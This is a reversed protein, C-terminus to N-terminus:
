HPMSAAGNPLASISSLAGSREAPQRGALLQEVDTRALWYDRRQEVHAVATRIQERKALLLQFLGVLMANYELQTHDVIQQKTPLLTREYYDNAERMALLRAAADRARARLEVALGAHLSRQKRMESEAAGIAGQGQYFLPLQLEIAPGIGWEESREASVGAAVEPVIGQLRALNSREAAATFRHKAIALDINSTLTMNEFGILSHEQEPVQPLRPVAKWLTDKGWLGMLVNLRERASTAQAEAAHLELRAEDFAVRHSALDLETINGAEHLRLALDLAVGYSQLQSKRLELLEATAQYSLFARRTDYSLDLMRAIATLKAVDVEARAAGARSALLLLDTLDLMAGVEMDPRAESGFRLGAELTPNPLRKAETLHGETVGVQEVVAQLERNNLLAIQAATEAQLPRMLLTQVDRSVSRATGASGLRVQAASRLADANVAAPSCALLALLGTAVAIAGRPRAINSQRM